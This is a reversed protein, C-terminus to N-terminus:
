RVRPLWMGMVAGFIGIATLLTFLALTSSTVLRVSSTKSQLAWFYLELIALPLLYQAFNLISLFPGTFTRGDFGVPRKFIVLWCMLGIRFFWVGSVVLFLRLAWRRHAAFNRQVATRWAMGIGALILLANVNIAIHQPTDGVLKRGSLTLYLGSLAMILATVMYLRGNWRHFVPFRTRIQPTIQILGSATIYAAFILHATLAINGFTLGPDYGHPLHKNIAALDARAYFAIIYAVFFLQGLAATVFWFRATQHLLGDAFRTM